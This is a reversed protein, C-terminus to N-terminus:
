RRKMEELFGAASRLAEHVAKLREPTPALIGDIMGEINAQAVSLLNGLEHRAVAQARNSQYEFEQQNSFLSSLRIALADDM